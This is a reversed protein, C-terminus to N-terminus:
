TRTKTTQKWAKARECFAQMEQETISCRKYHIIIERLAEEIPTPPGPYLADLQARVEVLPQWIDPPLHLPVGGKSTTM